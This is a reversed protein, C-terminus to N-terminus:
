CRKKKQGYNVNLVDNRKLDTKENCIYIANIKSYVIGM